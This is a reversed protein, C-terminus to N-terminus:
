QSWFRRQRLRWSDARPTTRPRCAGPCRSLRRWERIQHVSSRRRAVASAVLAAPIWRTSTGCRRRQPARRRPRRHTWRRVHGPGREACWMWNTDDPKSRDQINSGLPPDLSQEDRRNRVRRWEYMARAPSSQRDDGARSRNVSAVFRGTTPKMQRRSWGRASRTVTLEGSVSM